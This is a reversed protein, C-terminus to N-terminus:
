NDVKITDCNASNLCEDLTIGEVRSCIGFNDRSNIIREKDCKSLKKLSIECKLASSKDDAEFVAEVATVKHSKTYKASQPKRYYHERVRRRVDSTIGTYLSNDECRLIYVYYM